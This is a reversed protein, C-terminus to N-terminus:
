LADLFLRCLGLAVKSFLIMDTITKTIIEFSKLKCKRDLDEKFKYLNVELM